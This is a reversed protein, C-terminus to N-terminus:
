GHAHLPKLISMKLQIDITDVDNGNDLEQVICRSYWKTFLNKMFAMASGNVTLTIASFDPDYKRTGKCTQNLWKAM